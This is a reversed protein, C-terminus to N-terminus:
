PHYFYTMAWISWYELWKAYNLVMAVFPMNSMSPSKEKFTVMENWICEAVDLMISNMMIYLFEADALKHEKESRTPAVNYHIIKTILKYEPKM